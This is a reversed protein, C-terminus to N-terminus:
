PPAAADELASSLAAISVPKTLRSISPLGHAKGLNEATKAYIPAYGSIIIVRATSKISALWQILENGDEDPMIMDLMVVTPNFSHFAAKFDRARTKVEVDFGLKEAVRRVSVGFDVEDDVILLRKATM